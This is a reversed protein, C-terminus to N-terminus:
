RNMLETTFHDQIMHFLNTRAASGSISHTKNPYIMVHFQKGAEILANIM